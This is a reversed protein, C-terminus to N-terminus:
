KLFKKLLSKVDDKKDGLHKDLARDIEKKAKRKGEEIALEKAMNGLRSTDLKCLEAPPTDFEGQCKVPIGIKKVKENVRCAHNGLEGIVKLSALININSESINISGTSDAHIGSTILDFETNFIQNKLSAGGKLTKFPTANPWSSTDVTEKNILAFGKCTLANVSLGEFAGEEVNFNVKSVASSKLANLDNGTMNTKANLNLLGAISGYEKIAEINLSEFIPALNIDKITQESAWIPSQNTVNLTSLSAYSGEFLKGDLTQTLKGNKAIFTIAVHKTEISKAQISEQILEIDLDLSQLTELPLLQKPQNQVGAKTKNKQNLAEQNETSDSEPPLYDDVILQDGKLRVVSASSEMEHTVHGLWQSKDLNIALNSLELTNNELKIKTSLSVKELAEQYQMSPLTVGLSELFAKLSFDSVKINSSVNLNEGYDKIKAQGAVALNNLSVLLTPIDVSEAKTDVSVDSELNLNINKETFNPAKVQYSNELESLTFRTLDESVLLNATLSSNLSINNKDESLSYSLSLPFTEGLTINSLTLNLPKVSLEIAQPVSNFQIHTNILQFSEVLFNLSNQTAISESTKESKNNTESNETKPPLINNWNNETTSTQKLNLKLGDLLITEVNPTGEFLSWLDISAVIKNASAFPALEQDLINLQNVEIGIPFLSWSISDEIKINLGIQAKAQNEITAKFDNADKLFLVCLLTLVM